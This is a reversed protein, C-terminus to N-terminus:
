RVKDRVWQASRWGFNRSARTQGHWRKTQPSKLGQILAEMLIKLQNVRAEEMDAWPEFFYQTMTRAVEALVKLGEVTPEYDGNCETIWGRGELEALAEMYTGKDYHRQAELERALVAATQAQGKYIYSFAEWVYSNVEKDMWANIYADDRFAMLHSLKCCIKQLTSPATPALRLDMEFAPKYRLVDSEAMRSVIEALLAELRELQMIPLPRLERYVNRIERNLRRHFHRGKDTAQYTGEGSIELWGRRVAGKFDKQFLKPNAYPICQYVHALGFPDPEMGIALEALHADSDNFAGIETELNARVPFTYREIQTLIQRTLDLVWTNSQEFIERKTTYEM